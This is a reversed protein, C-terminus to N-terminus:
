QPPFAYLTGEETAVWVRKGDSFSATPPSGLQRRWVLKGARSVASFTGDDAGVYLLAAREPKTDISGRTGYEWVRKGNVNFAHLACDTAGVFVHGADREIQGYVAPQGPLRKAWHTKLSASALAIVRGNRTAVVIDDDLASLGAEVAGKVKVRRTIKGTRTSIQFVEGGTNAAYVSTGSLYPRSFIAHDTDLDFRREGTTANVAFFGGRAGGVFITGPEPRPTGLPEGLDADWKPERLGTTTGGVDFARLHGDQDAVIVRDNSLALDSLVRAGVDARWRVRARKTDLAVVHGRQTAVVVTRGVVVPRAVVKEGLAVRFTPRPAVDRKPDPTPDAMCRFPADNTARREVPGSPADDDGGGSTMAVVGAVLGMVILAALVAVLANAGRRKHPGVPAVRPVELHARPAAPAAAAPVPQPEEDPSPEDFAPPPPRRPPAPPAPTVPPVPPEPGPPVAPPPPPTPTRTPADTSLPPSLPVRGPPADDPSEAGALATAKAAGLVVVCKPDDYTTPLSGLADAVLRAVLPIRSAGGVLYVAALQAPELNARAITASLEDVSAQLAPQALEEFENRTIRVERDAAAVYVTQHTFSSLAEKARRAETRLEMAQRRWSRSEDHELHEWVDPALDQLTVGIHRYVLDDLQEGGLDPNGGPQGALAFGDDTRRLVAVDFTGGGLDYVAVHAGPAVRDDAYYIAAAVPEAVLRPAPLGANTAAQVLADLRREGWRV